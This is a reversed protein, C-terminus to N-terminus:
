RGVLRARSTDQIPPNPMSRGQFLLSEVASLLLGMTIPKALVIDPGKGQRDASPRDQPFGTLMIIPVDSTQRIRDCLEYGNIDPMVLDSIILDPQKTEFLHLGEHAGAAGYARYNGMEIFKVIVDRVSPDDDVILITESPM